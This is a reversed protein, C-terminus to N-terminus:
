EHRFWRTLSLQGASQYGTLDFSQSGGGKVLVDVAGGKQTGGIGRHIVVPDRVSVKERRQWSTSRVSQFLEEMKRIPELSAVVYIHEVGTNEDLYFWDERPPVSVAIGPSTSRSGGEPPWIIDIKTTSDIQFVYVYCAQHVSFLVKYNDRPTLVDGDRVSRVDAASGSGIQRVVDFDIQLSVAPRSTTGSSTGGTTGVTGGASQLLSLVSDVNAAHGLGFAKEALQALQSVTKELLSGVAGCGTLFSTGFFM